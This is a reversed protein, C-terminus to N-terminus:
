YKVPKITEVEGSIKEWVARQEMETKQRNLKFVGKFRYLMLGLSDKGQAFVVRIYRPSNLWQKVYGVNKIDNKNKEKITCGDLSIENLWEGHPYLKPFWIMTDEKIPHKVGGRQFNKYNYGFCNCADKCTKFAVNDLLSIKGKNIYTWPNYEDTINWPIFTKSQKEILANIKTVVDDAQRHISEIDKTVDIRVIQNETASVIDKERMMDATINAQIQHHGEDIEIFLGVQPFYLDVLAFSDPRVVYQQTVPKIDLRDLRHWIRTVVYNEYIKNQPRALQKAIYKKKDNMAVEDVYTKLRLLINLFRKDEAAAGWMGNCFREQRVLYTLLARLTEFDAKPIITNMDNNSGFKSQLYDLYNEMMIGSDYVDQIFETLEDDYVPYSMTFEDNESKRTGEWQCFQISDNNFYSIYEFLKEYNNEIM